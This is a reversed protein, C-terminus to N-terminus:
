CKKQRCTELHFFTAKSSPSPQRDRQRVPIQIIFETGQEPASVCHLRGGHKAVIIQYSISLGLGTGQGVPKTTFFPDFLLLRVRETMGPGNDIIRIIVSQSDLNSEGADVLETCIQISPLPQEVLKESEAKESSVRKSELADIANVLINMFVQNLQGSYCEVPPLTGYKKIVKIAPRGPKEKLRHQLILLTTELGEHINVRKMEAEDLRSFTRLSVVIDRIREAGVNMSNLLNPLDEMLFDLDIEDAYEEIAPVPNPYHQQYLNVLELLDKFYGKAPALNGCVFSVPNNIEHAIGAVMMGLSYMKESQVLQIQAQKLKHLTQELKTAQERLQAESRRLAMEAFVREHQLSLAAAAARLLDVASASWLKAETCNDFIIFGFFQEQVTLPLVLVSLIGMQELLFREEETFESVLGMITEGRALRQTWRPLCQNYPCYQPKCNDSECFLEPACWQARLSNHLQGSADCSNEFVYVHCAKATQGLLELISTYYNEEGKLALLRHQVEVLAALYREREALALEAQHRQTIDTAVGILGTVQGNTDRLPTTRNQYVSDGVNVIWARDNGELVDPLNEWIKLWSGYLDFDSQELLKSPPHGLRELGKGELLTLTGNCDTLYLIVPAQTVVTHLRTESEWLASEALQRDRMQAQLEENAQFLERTREEVRQELEENAGRLADEAEKRQTVDQVLSAVGVCSGNPEILPINYWECFLSRGDPTHHESTVCSAGESALLAHWVKDFQEKVSEPLMLETAHRAIAENQEYGFIREAAPNWERVEGELNWEIVALPTQQVMLSLRQQSQKLVEVTQKHEAIEQELALNAAELLTPSPLALARPILPVMESATYVSVIATIAKMLGSLWYAPYWLTLIELLHGTGCSLIFASFLLFIGQFPVDHRRRVFYLLLLPISYYALAILFDSGAHLWVLEPKWLFCYGHAMFNGSFFDQASHLM